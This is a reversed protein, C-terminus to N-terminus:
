RGMRKNNDDMDAQIEYKNKNISEDTRETSLIKVTHGDPAKEGSLAFTLQRGVASGVLTLGLPSCANIVRYNNSSFYPLAREAPLYTEEQKDLIELLVFKEQKAGDISLIVKDGCLVINKDDAFKEYEELVTEACLKVVKRIYSQDSGYQINLSNNYKALVATTLRTTADMLIEEKKM